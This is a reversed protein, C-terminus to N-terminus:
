ARDAIEQLVSHYAGTWDPLFELEVGRAKFVEPDYLGKGGPANVYTKAGVLRCIELVRDRAKFEPGIGLDSSYAIRVPIALHKCCEVLLRVAYPVFDGHCEMLAARIKPPLKDIAPFRRAEGAMYETADPRFFLENIRADFPAHALPLTLWDLNGNRLRLKNRHVFGRRPFQVCDYVLFLDTESLLRFYGTYPAFYGQM